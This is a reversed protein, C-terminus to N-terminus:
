QQAQVTISFPCAVLYTSQSCGNGFVVQIKLSPAVSSYGFTVFPCTVTQNCNGGTFFDANITENYICTNTGGTPSKCFLFVEM